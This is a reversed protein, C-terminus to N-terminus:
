KSATQPTIVSILIICALTFLLLGIGGVSMGIGISSEGNSANFCRSAPSNICNYRQGFEDICSLDDAAVILQSRPPRESPCQVYLKENIEETYSGEYLALNITAYAEPQASIRSFYLCMPRVPSAPGSSGTTLQFRGGMVGYALGVQFNLGCAVTSLEGKLELTFRDSGIANVLNELATGNYTGNVKCDATVHAVSTYTPTLQVGGSYTINCWTTVTEPWASGSSRSNVGNFTGGLAPPLPQALYAFTENHANVQQHFCAVLAVLLISYM